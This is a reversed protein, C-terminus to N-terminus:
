DGECDGRGRAEARPLGGAIGGAPRDRDTLHYLPGMLLVADASGDAQDLSLADGLTVGALPHQPQASSAERAQAVHKEVPDM